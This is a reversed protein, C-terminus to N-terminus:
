SLASRHLLELPHLPNVLAVVAEAVGLLDKSDRVVETFRGRLLLDPKVLWHARDDEIVFWESKQRVEILNEVLHLETKHNTHRAAVNQWPIRVLMDLSVEKGIIERITAKAGLVLFIARRPAKRLATVAETRDTVKDVHVRDTIRVINAKLELDVM